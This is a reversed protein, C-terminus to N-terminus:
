QSKVEDTKSCIAEIQEIAKEILGQVLVDDESFPKLVFDAVSERESPRGIGCRIRYFNEGIFSIISRLGNHGRASGAFRFAVKGFPFELEDHVVVIEEPKIGKKILFNLAQGSSNMFTQPKLLIIKQNNLMIEVFEIEGRLHWNGSYKKALVDLVRFGINHRTKIFQNGPNGLGIIAKISM